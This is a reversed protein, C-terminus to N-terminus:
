GAIPWVPFRLLRCLRLGGVPQFFPEAFPLQGHLGHGSLGGFQYSEDPMNMLSEERYEAGIAMQVGESATAIAIGYSEWDSSFTLNIVQTMTKGYMVASGVIYDIAEQTVAGEQFINWPVCGADGSRCVWEGTDPDEIVDLAYGMREINLDYLYADQVHNTASLGYLDYAWSDNIEGRLGTM